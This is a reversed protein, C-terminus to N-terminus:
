SYIFMDCFTKENVSPIFDKQEQLLMIYTLMCLALTATRNALDLKWTALKIAAVVYMPFFTKNIRMWPHRIM